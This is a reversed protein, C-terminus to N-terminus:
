RIAMKSSQGIDLNNWMDIKSALIIIAQESNLMSLKQSDKKSLLDVWKSM